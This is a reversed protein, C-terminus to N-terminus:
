IATFLLPFFVAIIAKEELTHKIKTRINTNKQKNTKAKAFTRCWDKKRTWSQKQFYWSRGSAASPLYYYLCNLGFLVSM